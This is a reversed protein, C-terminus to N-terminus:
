AKWARGFKFKKIGILGIRVSVLIESFHPNGTSRDTWCFSTFSFGRPHDINILGIYKKNNITMIRGFLRRHINHDIVWDHFDELDYSIVGITEM